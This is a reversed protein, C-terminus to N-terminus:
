QPPLDLCDIPATSIPKVDIIEQRQGLSKIMEGDIHINITSPGTRNREAYKEPFISKLQFIREIVMRPEMANKRSLGELRDGYETKAADVDDRFQPDTRYHKFATAYHLGMEDCTKYISLGNEMLLKIFLQKRESDFATVYAKNEIYGTKSDLTKNPIHEAIGM